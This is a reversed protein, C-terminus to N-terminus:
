DEDDDCNQVDAKRKSMFGVWLTISDTGAAKDSRSMRDTSDAGRGVVHKVKAGKVPIKNKAL